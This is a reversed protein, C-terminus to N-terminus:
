ANPSRAVSIGVRKEVIELHHHLHAATIWAVARLTVRGGSMEAAHDWCRPSIRRLLLLNTQRLLGWETVLNSFNGLGFRADAYANEDWSNLPTTDGAALRLMRSGFIREADAGHEFVQRITWTYPTHIKDVSETSLHSAVECLWYMQDTMVSLVCEGPMKALLDRHYEFTWEDETPRRSASKMEPKM